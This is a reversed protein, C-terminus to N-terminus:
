RKDQPRLIEDLVSAVIRDLEQYLFGEASRPKRCPQPEDQFVFPDGKFLRAANAGLRRLGTPNLDEGTLSFLPGHQPLDRHHLAAVRDIANIGIGVNLPSADAARKALHHAPANETRQIEAPIGEEELGWLIPEVLSSPVTEPVMVWIAIRQREAGFPKVFV